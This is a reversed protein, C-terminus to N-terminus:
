IHTISPKMFLVLRALLSPSSSSLFDKRIHPAARFRSKVPAWTRNWRCRPLSASLQLRAALYQSCCSRAKSPTVCSMIDGASLRQQFCVANNKALSESVPHERRKERWSERRERERERQKGKDQTKTRRLQLSSFLGPRASIFPTWHLRWSPAWLLVRM